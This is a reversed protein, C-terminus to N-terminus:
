TLFWDAPIKFTLFASEGKGEVYTRESEIGHKKLFMPLYSLCWLEQYLQFNVSIHAGPYVNGGDAENSLSNSTFLSDSFGFSKCYSDMGVSEKFERHFTLKYYNPISDLDGQAIVIDVELHEGASLPFGIINSEPCSDQDIYKIALFLHDLMRETEQEFKQEIDSAWMLKGVNKRFDDITMLNGEKKLKKVTDTFDIINYWLNVYFDFQFMLTSQVSNELFNM